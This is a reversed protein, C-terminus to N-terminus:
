RAIFLIAGVIRVVQYRNFGHRMTNVAVELSNHM